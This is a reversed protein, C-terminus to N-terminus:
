ISRGRGALYEDATACAMEVLMPGLNRATETGPRSQVWGLYTTGRLFLFLPLLAEEQVSLPRVSRYGALLGRRIDAYRPRGLNFYLATALEFLYWGYGADDFDILKLQGDEDLLNEPVLDAHILGYSGADRGLAALDARACGRAALLLDRQAVALGDYEWFRGWLPSDGVLGEADWAHRTFGEPPAWDHEHLRAALAGADAYLRSASRDDLDVGHESTGAPAGSLWGLVSVQRPQPVDPHAVEVVLRGDAAPLVPPVTVAGADGLARMWALESHLSAHSHYGHRHIRIAVREGDARRASFVANERYKVLEVGTFGGDWYTGASQALLTLRAAQEEHALLDFDDTGTGSGTV